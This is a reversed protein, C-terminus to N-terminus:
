YYKIAILKSIFQKRMILEDDPYLNNDGKFVYYTQNFLTFIMVIRHQIYITKNTKYIVIDGKRLVTENTVKEYTININERIFPRMSGTTENRFIEFSNEETQSNLNIYIYIILILPIALFFFFLGNKLDKNM